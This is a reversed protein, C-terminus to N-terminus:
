WNNGGEYRSEIDANLGLYCKFSTINESEPFKIRRSTQPFNSPLLVKIHLSRFVNHSSTVDKSSLNLSCRVFYWTVLFALYQWFFITFSSTLQSVFYNECWEWRLSTLKNASWLVREFISNLICACFLIHWALPKPLLNTEISCWLKM